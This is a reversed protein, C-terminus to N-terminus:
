NARAPLYVLDGPSRVLLGYEGVDIEPPVGFSGHFEGDDRSVTVGLLLPEAADLLVEIRQGAAPAGGGSSARGSVSISRGRFVSFRTQDVALLLPRRRRDDGPTAPVHAAGASHAADSGPEASPTSGAASGSSANSGAAAAAAAAVQSYSRQYALPRPLPDPSQPHYHPRDDPDHAELGEAAGGLDIRMYGREVMEVEVWAHAENMVFRAPIGLAQATIVFAYARHRCVGKMSHALDLFIDGTDRPPDASEEFSRFHRTLTSLADAFRSSRDLGLEAAFALATAELAAPLTRAHSALADVPVDPLAAANFYDRPADTLFTLRVQSTGEDRDRVVFFNDAGDKEVHIETPPDTRITLIRSEPSVSPLPVVEGASFDLVVSGWFRDRERADPPVSDVGVVRVRARRPDFVGLVPTRGDDAAIAVEDLATVRKFPAISPTFVTFYGLTGELETLRDPRFTPSRQGPEEGSMGDGPIATMAQEDDRLASASPAPLLQGDYLIAAPEGGDPGALVLAEEDRVDPVQEHLVPGQARAVLAVSLALVVATFRRKAPSM